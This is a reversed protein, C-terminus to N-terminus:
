GPVAIAGGYNEPLGLASVSCSALRSALAPTWETLALGLCKLGAEWRSWAQAFAAARQAPALKALQACVQPGLYDHAVNEWDPLADAGQAMQMVDVGISTGVHIAAVTLGAAHSISLGIPTDPWDLFIAHGPRSILAIATAPRHLLSGLIEQLVTRINERATHRIATDPTVLSIVTLARASRLEALAQSAGDPWAHVRVPERM